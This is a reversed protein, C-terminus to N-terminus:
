NGWKKFGSPSVAEKGLPKGIEYAKFLDQHPKAAIPARVKRDINQRKALFERAREHESSRRFFARTLLSVVPTSGM